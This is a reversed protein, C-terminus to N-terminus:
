DIFSAAGRELETGYKWLLLCCLVGRRARPQKSVIPSLYFCLTTIAVHMESDGMLLTTGRSHQSTVENPFLFMLPFSLVESGQPLQAQAQPLRGCSSSVIPKQAGSQLFPRQEEWHAAKNQKIKWCSPQQNCHAWFLLFYNFNWKFFDIAYNLM